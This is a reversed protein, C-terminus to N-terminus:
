NLFDQSHIMTCRLDGDVKSYNSYINYLINLAFLSQKRDAFLVAVLDADQDM